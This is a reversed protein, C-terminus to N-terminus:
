ARSVDNQSEPFDIVQQRCSTQANGPENQLKQKQLDLSAATLHTATDVSTFQERVQSETLDMQTAVPHTDIAAFRELQWMAGAIQRALLLEAEDAPAYIQFISDRLALFRENSECPLVFTAATLGHTTANRASNAKCASTAPGRSKAGNRRSAAQQRKTTM